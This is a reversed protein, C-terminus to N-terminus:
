FQHKIAFAESIFSHSSGSDFLVVSPRQNVLFMGTNIPEGEPVEEVITYHVCGTLTM